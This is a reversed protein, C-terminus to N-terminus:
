GSEKLDERLDITLRYESSEPDLAVRFGLKRGLALMPANTTIVPGSVKELGYKKASMLAQKLLVSGIGKGHWSDDLVIAFEGARRDPSFIIRAVGLIRPRPDPDKSNRRLVACLAIERDYDIQTLRVLMSKSIHKIPSFFRLYVTEPSLAEFLDVIGGADGPRIPRLFVEEGERTVFESEQRWPYPSIILHAPAQTRSKELEIRARTIKFEGKAARVPNMDLRKIQPYDTVMRSILILIEELRSCDIKRIDKYGHFLKSIRTEEMARRALLRNLPPLALARDGQIHTMAGGAGFWIVPGFLPDHLAGMTLEYDPEEPSEELYIGYSSLFEAPRNGDISVRARDLWSEMIRDAKERDISLRRDTRYPIQQLMEMNRGFKFLNAFARVAREPTDYTIIGKENLIARSGDIHKGGLWATFVPFPATELLKVLAKAIPTCDYIGVPSSLLLLGDIGRARICAEVVRIYNEPRSAQILEIPNKRSWSSGLFNDLERIFDGDLVAPELGHHAMADEAMVGTGGGNSVIALRPGKPRKGKALFEACDFLAQFGHVRLIGARKFATDYIEDRGIGIGTGSQGSKLVIIPKVRSVARAASMFERMRTLTELYMLISEVGPHSGLYDLLDAFNVDAQSGLSVFHSFGVNERMALDLVSTIIGGSQSLFAIKGPLPTQAMFSANLQHFTNVIGVSDPGLIRIGTEGAAQKIRRGAESRGDRIATRDASLIVAGGMNKRGCTRVIDPVVAMPVAIVAMDLGSPLDSADPCCPIGRIIKYKPNVPFIDGKFGGAGLSNMVAAGVSGRNPSAGIVAVSSPEFLKDLNEIGM